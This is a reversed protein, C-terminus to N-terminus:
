YNINDSIFTLWDINPDEEIIGHFQMFFYNCSFSFISFENSYQLKTKSTLTKLESELETSDREELGSMRLSPKLYTM